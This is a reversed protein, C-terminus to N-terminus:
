KAILGDGKVGDCYSEYFFCEDRMYPVLAINAGATGGLNAKRSVRKM